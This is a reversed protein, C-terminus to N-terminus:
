IRSPIPSPLNASIGRSSWWKPTGQSGWPCLRAGM